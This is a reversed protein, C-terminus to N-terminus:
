PMVKPTLWGFSNSSKPRLSGYPELSAEVCEESFRRDGRGSEFLEYWNLSVGALEAVARQSLGEKRRGRGSLGLDAPKLRRRLEVLMERLAKRRQEPVGLDPTPLM